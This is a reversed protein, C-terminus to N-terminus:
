LTVLLAFLLSRMVSRVLTDPKRRGAWRVANTLQRGVAKSQVLSSVRKFIPRLIDKAEDSPVLRCYCSSKALHASRVAIRIIDQVDFLKVLLVNCVQALKMGALIQIHEASTKAPLFVTPV